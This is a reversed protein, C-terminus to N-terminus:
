KVYVLEYDDTGLNLEKARRICAEWETTPFITHFYDHHHEELHAKQESLMSNDNVPM